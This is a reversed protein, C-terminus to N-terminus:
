NTELLERVAERFVRTHKDVDENETQPSMLAMNHFPTLLIGRNMAYLHMFRELEFDMANHAETGNKPVRSSFLYEARCGLRTVHWPIEFESIAKQVGSSWREALPIMRDFAEKTLVSSLTAKMAALSLANGALTGGIGGTDCDELSQRELFLQAIQETFGYAAGPVGGGIPKGFVIFDPALNEARTYGGPGACITHTEDIILLTGTRRTIARLADHFGPEPHVIGVNTLAPEALVCAVDQASLANELAALDNFEVVKTTVSPDVPPGINGRRARAEGNEHLTIFSEDVSGHYCWNFVLIKPRGTIHRALRISFRNADTATLAFQWCPLGFRKQLEEGVFIADESPLMLTIGRRSQQEIAKVTSSPSHGTMAGTDGLCFDIYRHGDVDYFHAGQAERVFPPFAGAWKAMWNMPVGGLLSKRAREFLSKSKPNDDVFRKQERQMLSALRTRTIERKRELTKM